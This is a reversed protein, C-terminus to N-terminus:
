KCYDWYGGTMTPDSWYWCLTSSPAVPVTGATSVVIMTGLAVGGVMTGYYPRPAWVRVPRRLDVNINATRNVNVNTNRRNSVSTSRNVNANRHINRSRNVNADGQGGRVPLTSDPLHQNLLVGSTFAPWAAAPNATGALLGFGLLIGAMKRCRQMTVRRNTFTEICFRLRTQSGPYSLEAISVGRPELLNHTKSRDLQVRTETLYANVDKCAWKLQRWLFSLIGANDTFPGAPQRCTLALPLCEDSAITKQVDNPSPNNM